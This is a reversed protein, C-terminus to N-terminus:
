TDKPSDPQVMPHAKKFAQIQSCAEDVKQIIPYPSLDVAYRRANFVQPVLFLDAATLENGFCYNGATVRLIKELSDFGRKIWYAAWDNKMETTAGFRKELEQLVKLNQVPHIGSNINECFQRVLSGRYPDAPILRQAPWVADLYEIIPLSQGIIKDGHKLSPIEGMANIQRYDNKNQEGGNNLLHIAAYEFSIGKLYLATRVRYAASSRFYSYLIVQENAM